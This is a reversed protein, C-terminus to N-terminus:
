LDLGPYDDRREEQLALAEENRRERIHAEMLADAAAKQRCLATRERRKQAARMRRKSRPTWSRRMDGGECAAPTRVASGDLAGEPAEARM